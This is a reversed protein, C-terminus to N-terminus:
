APPPVSSVRRTAPRTTQGLGPPRGTARMGARHNAPLKQPEYNLFEPSAENPIDLGAWDVQGRPEFGRHEPTNILRERALQVACVLFQVARVARVRLLEHHSRTM